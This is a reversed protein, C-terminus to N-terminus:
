TSKTCSVHSDSHGHTQILLFVQWCVTLSFIFASFLTCWDDISKKFIRTANGVVFFSGVPGRGDLQWPTAFAPHDRCSSTEANSPPHWLPGGKTFVPVQRVSQETPLWNTLHTKGTFPNQPGICLGCLASHSTIDWSSSSSINGRWSCEDLLMLKLTEWWSYTWWGGAILETKANKRTTNRFRKGWVWDPDGFDEPCRWPWVEHAATARATPDVLWEWTWHPRTPLVAPLLQSTAMQM